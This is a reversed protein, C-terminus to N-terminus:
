KAGCCFRFKLGSGCGCDNMSGLWGQLEKPLKMGDDCYLDMFAYEGQPLDGNKEFVTLSRTENEAIKPFESHFSHFYM